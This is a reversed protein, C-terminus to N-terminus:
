VPHHCATRVPRALSCAYRPNSRARPRGAAARSGGEPFAMRDAATEGDARHARGCPRAAARFARRGRGAARGGWQEGPIAAVAAVQGPPRAAIGVPDPHALDHELLRLHFPDLLEERPEQLPKGVHGRQGPSGLPVHELPPLAEAIVPPGPLQVGRGLLDHGLVAPLKRPRRGLKAPQRPDAAVGGARDGRDCEPLRLRDHLGVATAHDGPEHAM